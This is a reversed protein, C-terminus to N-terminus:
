GGRRTDSAFGDFADPLWDWDAAFSLGVGADPAAALLALAGGVELLLVAVMLREMDVMLGAFRDLELSSSDGGGFPAEACDM